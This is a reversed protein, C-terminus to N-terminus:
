AAIVSSVAAGYGYGDATKAIARFYLTVGHPLDGISLLTTTFTCKGETETLPTTWVVGNATDITVASGTGYIVGAQTVPLGSTIYINNTFTRKYTSPSSITGTYVIPQSDKVFRVSLGNRAANTGQQGSAQQFTTSNYDLSYNYPTNGYAAYTSSTWWAGTATIEYFLGDNYFRNGGPLGSFGSTNTALYNPAKWHSLGTEKLKGGSVSNTGFATTLTYIENVSPVHYGIPAFKKRLSANSASASDWIGVTAYWNYLKGYITGNVPDNNYYCWAGTTANKWQTADTIQPIITGDSYCSINANKTAWIQTNVSGSTGTPLKVINHDYIIDKFGTTGGSNGNCDLVQLTIKYRSNPVLNLLQGATGTKTVIASDIFPATSGTTINSIDFWEPGLLQITTGTSTNNTWEPYSNIGTYASGYAVADDNYRTISFISYILDDATYNTLASGNVAFSQSTSLTQSNASTTSGTYVFPNITLPASFIPNANTLDLTLGSEGGGSTGYGFNHTRIDGSKGAAPNTTTVTIAFKFKQNILDATLNSSYRYAKKLKVKYYGSDLLIEFYNTPTTLEANGGNYVKYIQINTLTFNGLQYKIKLNPIYSLATISESFNNLDTTGDETSFKFGSAPTEFQDTYTSVGAEQQQQLDYNIDEVLGSTSTEWYIDLNSIIPKTEYISLFPTFATNIGAIGFELSPDYIEAQLHNKTPEYVNTYVTTGSSYLAYETATGVSLVNIAEKNISTQQISPFAGAAFVTVKSYLKQKSITIGSDRNVDMSMRPVKNINDGHLSIYSKNSADASTASSVGRMSYVNYYDQEAQKVVVKYSHWGNINITYKFFGNATTNIYDNYSVDEACTITTYYTGSNLIESISLIETYPTFKGKLYEGAKLHGGQIYSTTSNISLIKFSPNSYTTVPLKTKISYPTSIAYTNNNITETGTSSLNPTTFSLSLGKGNWLNTNSTYVGNTVYPAYVYADKSNIPLIVSSQRGFVDSLVIGVSYGRKQKLSHQPYKGGTTVGATSILTTGSVTDSKTIINATYNLIPLKANQVYNGYVVRGGVVEQALAKIPVNDYTRSYQDEPLTKYPKSGNYKYKFTSTAVSSTYTTYNAGFDARTFDIYDLVKIATSDSAKLLIEIGQAHYYTPMDSSPMEINLMVSGIDNIMSSVLATNIIRTKDATELKGNEKPVFLIQTFPAIVSYENDKFKYRYSIRVFKDLMYDNTTATTDRKYLNVVTPALYPLYRSISLQTETTYSRNDNLIADVNIRRPQNFNDTWFLLNGVLNVGTILYNKSFNLFSGSVLARPSTTKGEEYMLIACTSTSYPARPTATTNTFNTVFWFIRNNKEDSFIGISTTNSDYLATQYPLNNGLINEITGVNSGESRSTNLNLADRYEGDPVLRNDMDKNMRSKLFDNKSEAM